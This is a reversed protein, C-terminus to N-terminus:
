ALAEQHQHQGAEDGDAANEGELAHRHIGIGVESRGLDFDNSLPGVV